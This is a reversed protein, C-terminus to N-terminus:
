GQRRLSALDMIEVAQTLTITYVECTERFSHFHLGLANTLTGAVITSMQHNQRISEPDGNWKDIEKALDPDNKTLDKCFSAIPEPIVKGRIVAHVLRVEGMTPNHVGVTKLQESNLGPFDSKLELAMLQEYNNGTEKPM